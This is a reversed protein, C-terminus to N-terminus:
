QYKRRTELLLLFCAIYILPMNYITYRTQCFVVASVITVNAIINALVFLSFMVLNCTHKTKDKKRVIGILLAGYIIYIFWAWYVLIRNRQSVTTALGTFFNDLFVPIIDVIKTPLLTKNYYQVIQDVREDAPYNAAYDITSLENQIMPLMIRLQIQDYNEILHVERDFWRLNEPANNLLHQKSNCEDYIKTYLTKLEPNEIQNVDNEDATYFIMTAIFRNDNVHRIFQGNVFYNYSCDFFLSMGFLFITLVSSIYIGRLYKKIKFKNWLISYIFLCTWIILQKRTNFGIFCFICLIWFSKRSQTFLYELSWRVFLLHLSITIGETLITNNYFFHDGAIFRFLISTLIPFMYVVTTSVHSLKFEISLYRTLSYTAYAALISQLVVVVYLYSNDKLFFCINRILCLFISYLPERALSMEMYGYSDNLLKPGDYIAFFVYFIFGLVGLATPLNRNERQQIFVKM